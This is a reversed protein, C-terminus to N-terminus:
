FNIFYISLMFICLLFLIFAMSVIQEIEFNLKLKLKEYILIWYFIKRLIRQTEIKIIKKHLQM